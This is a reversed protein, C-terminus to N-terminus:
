RQTPNAAQAFLRNWAGRWPYALVSRVVVTRVDRRSVKIRASGDLVNGRGLEALTRRGILLPWACALRVRVQRRPLLNTYDWGEALLSAARDLYPAYVTRFRGLNAPDLLDRPTMGAGSLVDEPLYCRGQRVDRPLDRLINVLQLGQGFHVGLQFLRDEDLRAEPFLHARCMATWFEGVCGAVRYTYDVLELDSGLAVLHLPSAGAFRRLDLEQGGTITTLVKRIRDQDAEEFTRLLALPEEIRRLLLRESATPGSPDGAAAGTDCFRDLNLLPSSADLIRRRLDDLAGLRDACPVLATDALTDTARALLYAVAIQPRIAGPLMRVTLYFSRSVDRLLGTLLANM